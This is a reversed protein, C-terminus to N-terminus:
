DTAIDTTNPIKYITSPVASWGGTSSAPTNYDLEKAATIEINSVVDEFSYGKVEVAISTTGGGIDAITYSSGGLDNLTGSAGTALEVSPIRANGSGISVNFTVQWNPNWSTAGKEMVFPITVVSTASDGPSVSGSNNNCADTLTGINVDFANNIPNVSLQKVTSCSAPAPTTETFSLTFSKGVASSNWTISISDGDLATNITYDSATGGSIEWLLDNSQDGPNVKYEHTSGAMPSAGGQAMAAVSIILLVATAILYTLTKKM